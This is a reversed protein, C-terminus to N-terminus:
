ITKQVPLELTFKSGQGNASELIIKGGMKEAISKILFLGLGTSTEGGTPRATLPQFRQFMKQKDELSFGPGEDKVSFEIVGDKRTLTCEIKKKEDSFKVANSLMNEVVRGLYNKDSHIITDGVVQLHIEINKKEALSRYHKVFSNVVNAFDLKGLALEIRKEDLRRTDLLNRIMNLADVSVQHIKGLLEKQDQNLNENAMNMLQALAFIRNFPGKLDHSVLSLLQIKEQNLFALQQNSEELEQVQKKIVSSQMQMLQVHRRSKSMVYVLMLTSAFSLGILFALLM